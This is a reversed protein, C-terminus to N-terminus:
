LAIEAMTELTRPDTTALVLTTVPSDAWLQLRDAIRRVPGVLAIDDVLRDSVAAAAEAKAGALYLSRIRAAEEEFGLRAVLANYVSRVDDNARVALGLRLRRRPHLEIEASAHARDPPRGGPLATTLGRREVPETV